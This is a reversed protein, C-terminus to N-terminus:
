INIAEEFKRLYIMVILRKEVILLGKSIEYISLFIGLNEDGPYTYNCVHTSQFFHFQPLYMIGPYM